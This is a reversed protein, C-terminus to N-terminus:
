ELIKRIVNLTVRAYGGKAWGSGLADGVCPKTEIKLSGGGFVRAYSSGKVGIESLM